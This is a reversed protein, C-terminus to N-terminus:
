GHLGAREVATKVEEMIEEAKHTKLGAKGAVSMINEGTPNRGEGDITTAHEGGMGREYVLDYAPSVRWCGKDPTQAM